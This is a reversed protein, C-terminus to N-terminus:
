RKTYVEDFNAMTNIVMTLAAVKVPNLAEDRPYEGIELLALAGQRDNRYKEVEENHLRYMLNLEAETIERSVLLRFALEMQDKVLPTDKAVREALVRCCEIMQPENLLLLAQLPTNTKQRRVMCMSRDSADMVTMTPPPATRRIFTYMSRRYLNEGTDHRYTTLIRSFHTKSWLGDPQYTKVSPGGIKDVLLGSAQLMNDRIMEASLRHSPGRALLENSADIELLEERTDSSQRYTASTVISRILAKLDWGSERFTVALWDLLEPHTPLEGQNGFDELTSVIGAGFILHWYRNVLVRATLPHQDNLIWKVLGLRNPPFGDQWPLLREPTGPYVQETPSDYMGRDLIFTERPPKMERMVMIDVLTDLLRHEQARLNTLKKRILESQDDHHLMYHAIQLPRIVASPMDQHSLGVLSMVELGSILRNYVKIDDISGQFLGLDLDGQFSRGVRIGRANLRLTDNITRISKFLNDYLIATSHEVGNIFVKIGDSKSSGDYTFFVHTWDNVPISDLTIVQLCQSPLEYTLRVSVRNISDLYVEYGRWHNNKGGANGMIVSYSERKEPYVYAGMSFSQTREWDGIGQLTLHAYENTFRPAMGKFGKVMKAGRILGQLRPNVQNTVRGASSLIDVPFDGVLGKQLDSPNVVEEYEASVEMLASQRSILAEEKAAVLGRLHTLEQATRENLLPMTPAFNGDNGTMGLEDVNNFFTTLQYFEKQSIPDFKHDHCRACELTLGLFAKATTNTRDFVNELRYEEPVIGSESNTPNNRHFATALIQEQTADPLLDGALQWITFQDFPMNENFAEIVWDRWPWMTRIGDAHYGHSDAYRAVDLWDMAMREGYHPSTLLEDVVKEYAQDSEDSLFVEIEELNPPLGTLDFHVRRLLRVKDAEPSPKVQMQDLKALVFRDIDNRIWEENAVAPPEIKQPPLFSWHAKYEAGQEIWRTLIAIEFMSLDLNSEPPPMQYEPDHSSIRNFLESQFPKGPVLAFRDQNEGLPKFASEAQDLRLDAEVKQEDPGHCAFCRDSLIPKVHYNFDIVKPLQASIEAPFDVRSACGIGHLLLIVGCLMSVISIRGNLFM